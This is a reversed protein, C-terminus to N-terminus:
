ARSFGLPTDGHHARLVKHFHVIPFQDTEDALFFRKAEGRHVPPAMWLELFSQADCGRCEVGQRRKWIALRFPHSRAIGLTAIHLQARRLIFFALLQLGQGVQTKCPSGMSPITSTGFGSDNRRSSGGTHGWGVGILTKSVVVKCGKVISSEPERACPARSTSCNRSCSGLGSFIILNSHSSPARNRSTPRRM